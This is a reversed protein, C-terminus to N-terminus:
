NNSRLKNYYNHISIIEEKHELKMRLMDNEATLNVVKDKLVAIEAALIAAEANLRGVENQVAILDENALRVKSEEFLDDLSGGLASVIDYLTDMYPRDTEGSFIRAVTKESLNKKEAIQKTTMGSAKKLELLKELWM